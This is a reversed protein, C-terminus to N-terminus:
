THRRDSRFASIVERARSMFERDIECTACEQQHPCEALSHGDMVLEMGGDRKVMEICGTPCVYTCSGCGICTSTDDGFPTSVLRDIGRDCLAIADACVIESCVRVCLACLICKRDGVLRYKGPSVGLRRAMEKLVPVDPCRALLLEVTSRRSQRVAQSDTHVELRDTCPFNCSTVLRRRGWQVVEVICLRCAGYPSLSRHHCLTPIEIGLIRAAEIVPTGAPVRLMKGDITLTAKM